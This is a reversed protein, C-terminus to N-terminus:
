VVSKRDAMNEPNVSYCGYVENYKEDSEFRERQIRTMYLVDTVPLVLDLDTYEEQPIDKSAVFEKVHDPMRLQPPSVYKLHVKYLTLLRALSHVTRGNKLDGVLTITLGNVTGIEERITFIDLLAQTPHEGIGNGANILPKRCRAAVRTMAEPSPHRFVICDVYGAMVELTDELSEGKQASSSSEDIHVVRGGLRQMAVSFSVSTRTSVEYFVSAMVKGALIHDLPRQKMVDVRFTQALNFLDNLQEKSFMDASLVHQYAFTHGNSLGGIPSIVTQHSTDTPIRVALTNSEIMPAESLTPEKLKLLSQNQVKKFKEELKVEFKSWVKDYLDHVKSEPKWLTDILSSDLLDAIKSLKERRPETTHTNVSRKIERVDEGYGCAALVQGEIFVVEGRLVVRQIAGTVKFGTFPTWKSKSHLKHDLIVWQEDLDVEVFTNSQEPLNFIRLPNRHCKNIIDEITLRKQNVATLLLPLITELGPFGPPANESEKEQITHPAHDTAFIDIVDLNEWLAQQDELSCLPPKVKSKSIGIIDKDKESLFLHHPCVECTVPLGKSKAERIVLIEEKRAVHCIHVPRNYLSAIMIIAATTQGEAHVCIPITKPWQECHKMWYTCNSMQLANFTENLYMKLTFVENALKHVSGYNDETAGVFLAYDCRAGAKALQKANRLSSEDVVPPDTNPMVCILTVGGALAAATGSAYDEKHTYGPERIHCHIDVLGPLTILRHSSLRDIHSKVKPIGKVTSMAEVLLKAAKVNTILPVSYEVALRRTQYGFTKLSIKSRYNSNRMPVNIVLDIEKRALVEALYELESYPVDDQGVNDFVGHVPEVNFGHESYFDATGSSAYIKFGMDLLSRICPILEIKHKLTGVSVLIANKPLQFGTSIMAKLYAEYKNEGFCAVEGTSAMEVGLTVDAGALRAFSFQPVKVGVKVSKKSLLDIAKVQEGVIVRTATAVFDYDLTKSVFPFSRSVRVNCEIVKLENDKAILQMNFPGTIELSAAIAKCINRIKTLTEENIGQPPTILSADGSHVGANEVHESVAMCLIIGDSAVADVDIEKAELIFKSIVVPHEKSVTSATKLYSELDHASFAVKMAAGSLVYSPRVLCPYGVEECFKIASSLDILEKWRPQSIKIRDLMRSFKFRNEAGDVSEPSSGFIRVQQRHLDMAINNPLQGGMCLVIGDPNELNYINMVVEFCIEEFYLRDSMDYDTSVTEPNYNIMITKRGLARLERLCGVACWDFEVSSGIRYVGSGIVITYNSPFSIDHSKANYTLYLYNTSAPYEAAVTDIQKVFPTIGKKERQKRIILETKKVFSAIQKDSFGLQKAQLLLDDPITQHPNLSEMLVQHEIINRMKCLFWSDIKTLQNLREISYNAKLAAALVFMRKDTPEELEKDDVKKVYPDFGLVNEDVMRLAKQFAEEFKRGIAMVEGVSKMSSGIKTSVQTFKNLDWRPVKVTCYDLSPEFCATTSGTVSNTIDPLSIGLALKAAVYALPYGTAKSALASSRSLRANVEVIYYEDSTRSLAFQVNCEGVIGFHQVTKISVSRLKNYEGDTLTQSPAVVISEGTHIGLPDINEMNCVTICNNQCDRVVEYEVEKWGKLSKDVILQNSQTFAIQALQRLEEDNNAFGSGLGGLSFASRTMVPYGLKEAAILAEEVSYVATSPVVKEEIESITEAFLKRDETKIISEVPTGLVSVKYKEFVGSKQLKIGCNLATQGGFTLLIGDPRESEIVQEVYHADVPLFYVKDALGKSTQVTAINPNVVVTQVGHEKLAKIAQSGSYDFEGAQGISLGGSGLILVKRPKTTVLKEVVGSPVVFYDYITQRLNKRKSIDKQAYEIVTQLYIDFLCELDRPGPNAEPHFQVSFYPLHKHILGENTKDNANTFLPLWDSDIIQSVDVAYGHNQSTMFCHPTGELICPQNHGRNGYKMKYTSFGVALALLQHGLCIGFIPKVNDQIKLIKKLNAIIVTCLSPDGPGNSLFLGDYKENFFPYDWPVVIVRANKKILCRIQNFKLGCDVICITPSGKENFIIKEKVSVESVLNLENPNFFRSELLLMKQDSINRMIIKGLMTGHNRINKTLQRTDIGFIGPVKNCCLWDRLSKQHKWHNPQDCVEDVILGAVWIKRSEFSLSLGFEDVMDGAIGYNGILPYTLVLLQQHYSPDTLSEPYGVMGTQFVIEGDADEIFGFSYGHYVTGDSVLLSCNTKTMM